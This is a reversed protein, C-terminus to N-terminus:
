AALFRRLLYNALRTFWRGRLILLLWLGVSIMSILNSVTRLPTKEFSIRLLHDGKPVPVDLLGYPPRTDAPTLAFRELKEGTEPDM